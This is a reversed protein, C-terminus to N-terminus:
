LLWVWFPNSIALGKLFSLKPAKVLYLVMLLQPAQQLCLAYLTFLPRLYNYIDAIILYRTVSVIIIITIFIRIKNHIYTHMYIYSTDKNDERMANYHIM